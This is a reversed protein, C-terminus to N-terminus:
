AVIGSSAPYSTSASGASVYRGPPVPSTSSNYYNYAGSITRRAGGALVFPKLGPTPITYKLVLPVEWIYDHERSCTCNLQDPASGGSLSIQYGSRQYLGDAEIQFGLPLGVELSPGVIYRKSEDTNYSDVNGTLRGGGIVGLTISQAVCFLSTLLIAAFIRMYSLKCALLWCSLIQPSRACNQIAGARM